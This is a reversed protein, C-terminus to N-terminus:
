LYKGDPYAERLDFPLLHRQVHEKGNADKYVFTRIKMEKIMDHLDEPFDSPFFSDPANRLHEIRKWAANVLDGAEYFSWDSPMGRDYSLQQGANALNFLTIPAPLEYKKDLIYAAAEDYDPVHSIPSSEEKYWKHTHYQGNRGWKRYNPVMGTSSAVVMRPETTFAKGSMAIFLPVLHDLHYSEVVQRSAENNLITKLVADDYEGLSYDHIFKVFTDARDGHAHSVATDLGGLFAAMIFSMGDSVGLGAKQRVYVWETESDAIKRDTVIVGKRIFEDIDEDSHDRQEFASMSYLNERMTPIHVLMSDGYGLEFPEGAFTQPYQELARIRWQPADFRHSLVQGIVYPVFASSNGVSPSKRSGDWGTSKNLCFGYIERRADDPHVYHVISPPEKCAGELLQMNADMEVQRMRRVGEVAGVPSGEIGLRLPFKFIRHDKGVRWYAQITESITLDPVPIEFDGHGARASGNVSILTQWGKHKFNMPLDKAKMKKNFSIYVTEDLSRPRLGNGTM